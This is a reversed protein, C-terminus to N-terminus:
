IGILDKLIRKFADREEISYQAFVRAQHQEALEFLLHAAHQGQATLAFCEQAVNLLGQEVLMSSAQEIEHMPMAAEITIQELAMSHKSELLMLLRAESTRFGSSLQVPLYENQYARVAQTLLYYINHHLRADADFVTADQESLIPKQNLSPHPMVASYAGQHFVLPARGYDAFRLVRGVIIWHDGGDHVAYKECEFTASCHALLPAQGLGLEFAIGIFKDASRRAFHNSLEIQTASLVNVAFHTAEAFVRYSASHKDISWLILAPDLSVSNFSNATMGVQEGQSNQATMVTVGTAFNGLARRFEKTDILDVSGLTKMNIM